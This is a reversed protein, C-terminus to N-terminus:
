PYFWSLCIRGPKILPINTLSSGCLNRLLSTEISIGL